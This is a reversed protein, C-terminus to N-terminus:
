HIDSNKYTIIIWQYKTVIIIENNKISYVFFCRLDSHHGFPVGGHLDPYIEDRGFGTRGLGPIM